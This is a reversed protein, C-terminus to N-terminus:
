LEYPNALGYSNYPEDMYSMRILLDTHTIRIPEDTYSMRILLDTHM